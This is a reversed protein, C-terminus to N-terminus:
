PQGFYFVADYYYVATRMCPGRRPDWWKWRGTCHDVMERFFRKDCDLKNGRGARVAAYCHDHNHCAARFDFTVGTDRAWSCGDSNHALVPTPPAAIFSGMIALVGLGLALFPYTIRRRLTVRNSGRDRRIM